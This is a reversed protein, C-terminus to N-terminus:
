GNKSLSEKSASDSDCSGGHTPTADATSRPELRSTYHLGNRSFSKRYTCYHQPLLVNARKAMTLWGGIVLATLLIKLQV